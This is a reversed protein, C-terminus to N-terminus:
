KMLLFRLKIHFKPKLRKARGKACAVDYRCAFWKVKTLNLQIEGQENIIIIILPTRTFYSIANENADFM